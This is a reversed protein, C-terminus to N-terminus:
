FITLYQSSPETRLVIHDSQNEWTFYGSYLRFELKLPVTIEILSVVNLSIFVFSFGILFWWLLVIIIEFHVCQFKLKVSM